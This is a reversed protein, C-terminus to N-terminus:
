RFISRMRLPGTPAIGGYRLNLNPPAGAPQHIYYFQPLQDADVPVAYGTPKIVFILSEDDGAAHLARGRRDKSRRPREVGSRPSARIARDAPAGGSRNEYVTGSVTGGTTAALARGAPAFAAAVAAATGYKVM